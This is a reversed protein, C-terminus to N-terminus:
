TAVIAAASEDNEIERQLAMRNSTLDDAVTSDCTPVPFSPTKGDCANEDYCGGYRKSCSYGDFCISHPVCASASEEVRVAAASITAPTPLTIELVTSITLIDRAVPSGPQAARADLPQLVAASAVTAVIFLTFFM